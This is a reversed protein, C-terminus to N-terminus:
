FVFAGKREIKLIYKMNPQAVSAAVHAGSRHRAPGTVGDEYCLLENALRESDAAECYMLAGEVVYSLLLNLVGKDYVDLCRQAEDILARMTPSAKLPEDAAWLEVTQEQQRIVGFARLELEDRTDAFIHYAYEQYVSAPLVVRLKPTIQAARAACIM